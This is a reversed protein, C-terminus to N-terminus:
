GSRSFAPRSDCRRCPWRCASRDTASAGPAPRNPWSPSRSREARRGAPRTSSRCAPIAAPQRFPWPKGGDHARRLAPRHVIKAEGIGRRADVGGRLQFGAAEPAIRRNALPHDQTLHRDAVEAIELAVGLRDIRRDAFEARDGRVGADVCQVMREIPRGRVLDAVARVLIEAIEADIGAIALFAPRPRDRDAVIHPNAM